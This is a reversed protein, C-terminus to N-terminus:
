ALAKAKISDFEAQSIAGKELLSHAKAIQDAADSGGATEKVYSDFQQQAEQQRKLSREAMGRGRVILYILIGLYSLLIVCLIWAAKEWGSITHDGFLDGFISILLWFWIVFVFLYVISLFVDGQGFEALVM